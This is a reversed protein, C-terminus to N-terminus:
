CAPAGVQSGDPRAWAAARWWTLGAISSFRVFKTGQMQVHCTYSAADCLAAHGAVAAPSGGPRVLLAPGFFARLPHGSGAQRFLFCSRRDKYTSCCHMARRRKSTLDPSPPCAGPAVLGQEKVFGCAMRVAGGAM